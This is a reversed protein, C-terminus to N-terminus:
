ITAELVSVLPAKLVLKSLTMGCQGVKVASADMVFVSSDKDGATKIPVTAQIYHCRNINFAFSSLPGDYNLKL